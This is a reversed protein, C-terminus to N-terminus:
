PSLLKFTQYSDSLLCVLKFTAFISATQHKLNKELCIAELLTAELLILSWLM